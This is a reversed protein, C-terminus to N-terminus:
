ANAAQPVPKLAAEIVRANAQAWVKYDVLTSNLKSFDFSSYLKNAKIHNEIQIVQENFVKCNNYFHENPSM